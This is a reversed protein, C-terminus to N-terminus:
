DFECSSSDSDAKPAAFPNASGAGPAPATAAGTATAAAVPATTPPAAGPAAAAPTSGAAGLVLRLPCHDSGMYGEREAGRGLLECADVTLASAVLAHDIRM